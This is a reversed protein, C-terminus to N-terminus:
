DGVGGERSVSGRRAGSSGIDANSLSWLDCVGGGSNLLSRTISCCSLCPIRPPRLGAPGQAPAPSCCRWGHAPRTAACWGHVMVGAVRLDEQASCGGIRCPRMCTCIDNGLACTSACDNCSAHRIAGCSESHNSLDQLISPQRMWRGATALQATAVLQVQGLHSLAFCLERYRESVTQMHLLLGVIPMASSLKLHRSLPMLVTHHVSACLSIFANTPGICSNHGQCVKASRPLSYDQALLQKKSSCSIAWSEVSAVLNRLCRLHAISCSHM